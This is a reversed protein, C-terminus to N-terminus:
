ATVSVGRFGADGIHGAFRVVTHASLMPDTKPV